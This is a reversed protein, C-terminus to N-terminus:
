RNVTHIKCELVNLVNVSQRGSWSLTSIAKMNNEYRKKM